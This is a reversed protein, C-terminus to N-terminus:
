LKQALTLSGCGAFASLAMSILQNHIGLGFCAFLYNAGCIGVFALISGVLMTKM